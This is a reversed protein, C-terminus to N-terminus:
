HLMALISFYIEFGILTSPFIAEAKGESKTLDQEEEYTDRCPKIPAHLPKESSVSHRISRIQAEQHQPNIGKFVLTR